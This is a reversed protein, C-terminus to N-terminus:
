YTFLIYLILILTGSDFLKGIVTIKKNNYM